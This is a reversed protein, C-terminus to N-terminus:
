GGSGYKILTFELVKSEPQGADQWMPWDDPQVIMLNPLPTAMVNSGDYAGDYASGLGPHVYVGSFM